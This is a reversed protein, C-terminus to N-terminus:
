ESSRLSLLGEISGSQGVHHHFLQRRVVDDIMVLKAVTDYKASSPPESPYQTLTLSLSPDAAAAAAARKM